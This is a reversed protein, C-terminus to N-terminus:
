NLIGSFPNSNSGVGRGPTQFPSSEQTAPRSYAPWLSSSQLSRKWLMVEKGASSRILRRRVHLRYGQFVKAFYDLPSTVM